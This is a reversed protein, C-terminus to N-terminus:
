TTGLTIVLHLFLLMITSSLFAPALNAYLIQLFMFLFTFCRRAIVIYFHFSINFDTKMELTFIFDFCFVMFVGLLSTNACLTVRFISVLSVTIALSRSCLERVM